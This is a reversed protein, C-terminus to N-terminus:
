NTPSLRGNRLGKNYIDCIVNRVGYAKVSSSYMSAAGTSVVVTPATKKLVRVLRDEDAEPYSSLFFGVGGLLGHNWVDQGLFTPWARMVVDLTKELVGRKHLTSILSACSLTTASASSGIRLGRNSMIKEIELDAPRGARLRQRFKDIASAGRTEEDRGIWIESEEEATLGVYLEADFEYSPGFRDLAALVRHQGCVVFPKLGDQRDNLVIVGVKDKNWTAALKQVWKERITRNDDTIVRVDGARVKTIRM